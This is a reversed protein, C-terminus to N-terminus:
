IEFRNYLEVVKMIRVRKIEINCPDVRICMEIYFIINIYFSNKRMEDYIVLPIKVRKIERDRGNLKFLVGRTLIDFWRKIDTYLIWFYNAWVTGFYLTFLSDFRRHTAKLKMRFWWQLKGVNGVTIIRLIHIM